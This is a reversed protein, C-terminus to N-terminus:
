TEKFLGKGKPLVEVEQVFIYMKMLLGKGKLLVKTEEENFRYKKAFSRNKKTFSKNKVFGKYPSLM